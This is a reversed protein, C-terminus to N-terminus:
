WGLCWRMLLVVTASNVAVDGFTWVRGEATCVLTHGSSAAVRAVKMGVLGKVMRPVMENTKGGHGLQGHRGWGFIWVRGKATYIVTHCAGGAVQVVKVGVVGVVM